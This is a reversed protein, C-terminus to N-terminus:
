GIKTALKPWNARIRADRAVRYLRKKEKEYQEQCETMAQRAERRAEIYEDYGLNYKNM